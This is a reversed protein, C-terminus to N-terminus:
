ILGNTLKEIRTHFTKNIEKLASEVSLQNCPNCFLAQLHRNKLCPHENFKQTIISTIKKSLVDKGDSINQLNDNPFAINFQEIVKSSNREIEEILQDEKTFLLFLFVNKNCTNSLTIFNQLSKNLLTSQGEETEKNLSNQMFSTLSVNYLIASIGIKTLHNINLLSYEEAHEGAFDIVKYKFSKFMIKISKIDVTQDIPQNIITNKVKFKDGLHIIDEIEPVYDVPIIDEFNNIFYQLNNDIYPQINTNYFEKSQLLKYYFNIKDHLDDLKNLNSIIEKDKIIGNLKSIIFYYIEERWMKREEELSFNGGFLIQIQNFLTTKGSDTWGMLILSNKTSKPTKINASASRKKNNVHSNYNVIDLEDDDSHVLQQDDGTSFRSRSHIGTGARHNGNGM